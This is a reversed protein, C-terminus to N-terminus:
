LVVSGGFPLQPYSLAEREKSTLRKEWLGREKIEAVTKNIEHTIAKIDSLSRATRFTKVTGKVTNFRMLVIEKFFAHFNEYYIKAYFSLQEAEDVKRQTWTWKNATSKFEYLTREEKDFGDFIGILRPESQTTMVLESKGERKMKPLMKLVAIRQRPSFGLRKMEQQIPFRPNEAVSHILTGLTMERTPEQKEGLIYRKHWEDFNRHYLSFESFSFFKRM